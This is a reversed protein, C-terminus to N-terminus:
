VLSSKRSFFAITVISLIWNYIFECNYDDLVDKIKSIKVDESYGTSKVIYKALHIDSLFNTIYKKFMSRIYDDSGSFSAFEATDQLYISKKRKRLKKTKTKNEKNEEKDLM